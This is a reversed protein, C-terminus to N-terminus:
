EDDRALFQAPTLVAIGRWPHMALLDKDGTVIVGAQGNLAVELFKDDRHDRCERVIRTAHVVEATNTLQYLFAECEQRSIYPDFKKRALVGAVEELTSESILVVGVDLAKDVAQRPVSTPLVLASVLVNTDIVVRLPPM